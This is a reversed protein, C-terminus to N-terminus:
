EFDYYVDDDNDKENGNIDEDWEDAAVINISVASSTFTLEIYYRRKEKIQKNFTIELNKYYYYTGNGKEGVGNEDTNQNKIYADPEGDGDSDYKKMYCMESAAITLPEDQPIVIISSAKTNEDGAWSTIFRMERDDVTNPEIVRLNTPYASAAGVIPYVATPTEDYRTYESGKSSDLYIKATQNILNDFMIQLGVIEITVPVKPTITNNDHDYEYYNRAVVDIAALRHEFNLAVTSSSSVDTNKNSATMVDILDLTSSRSALTYTIYPEGTKVGGTDFLKISSSETPYYGFFSYTNGTWPKVDTYSYVGNSYTVLQPTSSFVNPTIMDSNGSWSGLYKYGLVYFKDGLVGGDILAGRTNVDAEFHIYKKNPDLPINVEIDPVVRDNCGVITAVCLLATLIKNFNKM